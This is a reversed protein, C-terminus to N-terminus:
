PQVYLLRFALAALLVPIGNGERSTWHHESVRGPQVASSPKVDVEFWFWVQNAVKKREKLFYILSFVGQSLNLELPSSPSNIFIQTFAWIWWVISTTTRITATGKARASNLCLVWEDGVSLLKTSPLIWPLSSDALVCSHWVALLPSFLCIQFVLSTQIDCIQPWWLRVPIFSYFWKMRMKLNSINHRLKVEPTEESDLSLLYWYLAIWRSLMLLTNQNLTVQACLHRNGEVSQLEDTPYKCNHTDLPWHIFQM